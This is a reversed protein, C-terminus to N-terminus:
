FKSYRNNVFSIITELSKMVEDHTIVVPEFHNNDNLDIHLDEKEKNLVLNVIEEGTVSEVCVIYDIELFEEAPFIDPAIKQLQWGMKRM